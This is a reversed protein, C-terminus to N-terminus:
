KNKNFKNDAIFGVALGGITAVVTFIISKSKFYTIGGFLSGVGVITAVSQINNKKLVPTDSSKVDGKDSPIPLKIDSHFKIPVSLKAVPSSTMIKFYGKPTNWEFYTDGNKESVENGEVIDGEKFSVNVGEFARINQIGAPQGTKLVADKIFIYKKM